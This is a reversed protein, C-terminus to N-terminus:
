GSWWADLAAWAPEGTYLVREGPISLFDDHAATVAAAQRADRHGPHRAPDSERLALRRLRQAEDIRCLIQAISIPLAGLDNRAASVRV